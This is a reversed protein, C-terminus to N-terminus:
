LWHRDDTVENAAMELIALRRAYMFGACPTVPTPTTKFPPIIKFEGEHCHFGSSMGIIAKMVKMLTPAHNHAETGPRFACTECRSDNGVSLRAIDDQFRECVDVVRARAEGVLEPALGTM